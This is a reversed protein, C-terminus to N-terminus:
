KHIYGRTSLIRDLTNQIQIFKTANLPPTNTTGGPTGFGMALIAKILENLVDRLANGMAMQQINEQSVLVAPPTKPPPKIQSTSDITKGIYVKGQETSIVTDKTSNFKTDKQTNYYISGVVDATFDKDSLVGINKKSLLVLENVKSAITVRDSVVHIQNGDIKDTEFNPFAKKQSYANFSGYDFGVIVDGSTLYVSSGDENVNELSLDGVKLQNATNGQGNRILISPSNKRTKLKHTFRVSNGSRGTIITDGAFPTLYKIATNLDKSPAKKNGQPKPKESRETIGTERVAKYDRRAVTNTDAKSHPVGETRESVDKRERFNPYLSFASFPIYYNQGNELTFILVTEGEIPLSVNNLDLPYAYNSKLTRNYTFEIAGLHMLNKGNTEEPNNYRVLYNKDDEPVEKLDDLTTLVKTVKAYFSEVPHTLTPKM